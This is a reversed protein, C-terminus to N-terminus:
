VSLGETQVHFIKGSFYENAKGYLYKNRTTYVCGIRIFIQASVNKDPFIDRTYVGGFEGTYIHSCPSRLGSSHM